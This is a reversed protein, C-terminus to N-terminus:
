KEQWKQWKLSAVVDVFSKKLAFLLNKTLNSIYITLTKCYIITLLSLISPNLCIKLKAAQKYVFTALDEWPHYCCQLFSNFSKYRIM